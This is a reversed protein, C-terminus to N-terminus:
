IKNYKKRNERMTLIQLNDPHHKGGRSIPTIHDVEYGKPCSIYMQLIDNNEDDTLDISADKMRSRRKSAQHNRMKRAYEEGKYRTQASCHHSCHKIEWKGEARFRVVEFDKRCYLCQKIVKREKNKSEQLKTKKIGFIELKKKILVDSCGYHAAIDARRMNEVVYMQRLDEIDIEFIKAM